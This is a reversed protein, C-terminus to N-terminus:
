ILVSRLAGTHIRQQAPVFCVRSRLGWDPRSLDTLLDRGGLALVQDRATDPESLPKGIVQYGDVLMDLAVTTGELGHAQLSDLIAAYAALTLQGNPCGVNLKYPEKHLGPLWTLSDMDDIETKVVISVVGAGVDVANVDLAMLRKHLDHWVSTIRRISIQAWVQRRRRKLMSRFFEVESSPFGGLKCAQLYQVIAGNSWWSIDVVSYGTHLTASHNNIVLSGGTALRYEHRGLPLDASM